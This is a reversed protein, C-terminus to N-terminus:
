LDLSSAKSTCCSALWKDPGLFLSPSFSRWSHRVQQAPRRSTASTAGVIIIGIQRLRDTRGCSVHTRPSVGPYYYAPLYIPRLPTSAHLPSARLTAVLLCYGRPDHWCSPPARKARAIEDPVYVEPSPSLGEASPGQRGITAM